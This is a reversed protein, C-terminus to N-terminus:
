NTYMCVQFHDFLELLATIEDMDADHCDADHGHCTQLFMNVVDETYDQELLIERTRCEEYSNNSLM